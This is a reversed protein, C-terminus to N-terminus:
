VIATASSSMAQEIEAHYTEVQELLRAHEDRLSQMDQKHSKEADRLKDETANVQKQNETTLTKTNEKEAALRDREQQTLQLSRSSAEKKMEYQNSANMLRENVMSVHRKANQEQASLEKLKNTKNRVQDKVTEVDGQTRKVKNIEAEVFKMEKYCKELDAQTQAMREVRVTLDRVRREAETQTERETEVKSHMEVIEKKMREPSQVIKSSLQQCEQEKSNNEFILQKTQDDIEIVKNDISRVQNVMALQQSNLDTIQTELSKCSEELATVHPADAQQDSKIKQVTARRETNIAEQETHLQILKEREELLADVSSMQMERFKAFNILASMLKRVRKSEPKIIDQISFDVVGCARMMMGMAAISVLHPVSEEHLQPYDVMMAEFTPQKIDSKTLNLFMELYLELVKQIVTPQPNKIDDQSLPVRLEDSCSVIEPIRLTPFTMEADM